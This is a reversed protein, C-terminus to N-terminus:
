FSKRDKMGFNKNSQRYKKLYIMFGQGLYFRMHSIYQESKKRNHVAVNFQDHLIVFFLLQTRTFFNPLHPIDCEANIRKSTKVIVRTVWIDENDVVFIGDDTVCSLRNISSLLHIILQTTFPLPSRSSIGKQHKASELSVFQGTSPM